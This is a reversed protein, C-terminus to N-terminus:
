RFAVSPQRKQVIVRFGEFTSPVGTVVAWYMPDVLVRIVPGQADAVALTNVAGKPARILSQLHAAADQISTSM